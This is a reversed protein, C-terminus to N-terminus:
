QVTEVLPHSQETRYHMVTVVGTAEFNMQTAYHRTVRTYHCEQGDSCHCEDLLEVAEPRSNVVGLDRGDLFLRYTKM